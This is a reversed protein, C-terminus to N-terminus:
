ALYRYSDGIARRAAASQRSPHPTAHRTQPSVEIRSATETRRDILYEVLAPDLDRNRFPAPDHNDFLPEMSEVRIDLIPQGGELRYRSKPASAGM